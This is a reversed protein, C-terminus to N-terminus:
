IRLMREVERDWTATDSASLAGLMEVASPGYVNNAISGGCHVTSLAVHFAVLKEDLSKAAKVRDIAEAFNALMSAYKPELYSTTVFKRIREAAEVPSMRQVWNWVNGFAVSDLARVHNRTVRKGNPLKMGVFADSDIHVGNPLKGTAIVGKVLEEIDGVASYDRGLMRSARRVDNGTIDFSRWLHMAFALVRNEADLRRELEKRMQGLSLHMSPRDRDQMRLREIRLALQSAVYELRYIEAANAIPAHAGIGWGIDVTSLVNGSNISSPDYTFGFAEAM